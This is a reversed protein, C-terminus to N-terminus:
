IIPYHGIDYHTDFYHICGHILYIINRLYKIMCIKDIVYIILKEWAYEANCTVTQYFFPHLYSLFFQWSVNASHIYM